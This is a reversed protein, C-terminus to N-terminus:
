LQNAYQIMTDRYIDEIQSVVIRSDFPKIFQKYSESIEYYLQPDEIFRMLQSAYLDFMPKSYKDPNSRGSFNSYRLTDVNELTALGDSGSRGTIITPIGTAIAELAVRGSGFVLSYESLLDSTIKESDRKIVHSHNGTLVLDGCWHGLITLTAGPIRGVIEITAVVANITYITISGAWIFNKSLIPKRYTFAALDIFNPVVLLEGVPINSLKSNSEEWISKACNKVEESVCINKLIRACRVPWEQVIIGHQTAVAPVDPCQSIVEFTPGPHQVHLIDYHKNNNKLTEYEWYAVGKVADDVIDGGCRRAYIDVEHGRKLLEKALTHTYTESGTYMAFRNLAILIKLKDM